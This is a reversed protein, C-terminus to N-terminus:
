SWIDYTMMGQVVRQMAEVKALSKVKEWDQAMVAKVMDLPLGTELSVAESLRVKAHDELEDWQTNMMADVEQNTLGYDVLRTRVESYLKPELIDFDGEAMAEVEFPEIMYNTMQSVKETLDAKTVLGYAKIYRAQNSEDTIVFAKDTKLFDTIPVLRNNRGVLADGSIAMVIRDGTLSTIALKNSTPYVEAVFGSKTDYSRFKAIMKAAQARTTLNKPRFSGDPYGDLIELETALKVYENAWHEQNMDNYSSFQDMNIQNKNEELGLGRMLMTVVQARTLREEPRFTKDPFGTVVGENVLAAIYGKAPHSNIDTLETENVPELYLAKALAEAFEARTISRNPKFHGDEYVKMINQNVLTVIDNEAWHGNIDAASAFATTTLAM